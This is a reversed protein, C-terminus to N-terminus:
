NATTKISWKGEARGTIAIFDELFFGMLVKAAMNRAEGETRPEPCDQVWIGTEGLDDVSGKKVAHRVGVVCAGDAWVLILHGAYIHAPEAASRPHYEALRVGSKTSM